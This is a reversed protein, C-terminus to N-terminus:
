SKIFNSYKSFLWCPFNVLRTSQEYDGDFAPSVDIPALATKILEFGAAEGAAVVQVGTSPYTRSVDEIILLGGVMLAESLKRWLGAIDAHKYLNVSLLILGARSHQAASVFNKCSIGVIQQPDYQLSALLERTVEFDDGVLLAPSNGIKAFPVLGNRYWLPLALSRITAFLREREGRTPFEYVDASLLPSTVARRASGYLTVATNYARCAQEM